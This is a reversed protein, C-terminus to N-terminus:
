ILLHNMLLAVKSIFVESTAMHHVIALFYVLHLLCVDTVATYSSMFM